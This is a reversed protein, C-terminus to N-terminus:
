SQSILVQVECQQASGTVDLKKKRIMSGNPKWYKM